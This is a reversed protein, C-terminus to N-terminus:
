ITSLPALPQPENVLSLTFSVTTGSSEESKITMRGSMLELFYKILQLGMGTSQENSTGTRSVAGPSLLETLETSDIGIGHDRVDITLENGEHHANIEIPQSGSHSFKIANSLLNRLIMDIINADGLVIYDHRILNVITLEKHKAINVYLAINRDINRNINVNSQDIKLGYKERNVWYTTNDMLLMTSKLSDSVMSMIIGRQEEDTSSLEAQEVLMQLNNLPTRMDHSLVSILRGRSENMQNMKEQQRLHNLKFMYTTFGMLAIALILNPFFIYTGIGELTLYGASILMFKSFVFGAGSILVSLWIGWSKNRFFYLGLAMGVFLYYNAGITGFLFTYALMDLPLIFAVIWVALMHRRMKNAIIASICFLFTILNVLLYDPEGVMIISTIVCAMAGLLGVSNLLIIDNQLDEEAGEVGSYIFSKFRKKM